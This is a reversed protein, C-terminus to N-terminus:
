HLVVIAENVPEGRAYAFCQMVFTCFVLLAQYVGDHSSHVHIQIVPSLEVRTLTNVLSEGIEMCKDMKCHKVHM